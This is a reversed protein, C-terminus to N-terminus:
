RAFTLEASLGGLRASRGLRLTGGHSRAIDKAIALGLGVGGGQNPDREEGLRVFPREAAEREAEPIGPGDDEVTLRATRESISVAIEAHKGHRLANGVLNSLARQVAQPRVLATGAGDAPVLRVQGGTRQFGDAVRGALAALDTPEPQELADGRVFALFEEVLREMEQVDSQLAHVEADDPLMALGLRMRTLPTRLDHSVGGLVLTRQEIQREIRNRMDLFAAGAARVELAGRPRYPLVRGKGFADAAEALKAIPRLQNRLFLYAVLTLIVGAVIMLVLLQHPNSASVRQRDISVELPGVASEAVLRVGKDISVLDIMGVALEDRSRLTSIVARGTLDIWRRQEAEVTEAALGPAVRLGLAEGRAVAEAMSVSAGDLVYTLEQAIGRTMQRTVGEFHRQLFAMSVVLQIAVIPVILILAARGYLGRPLISRSAM